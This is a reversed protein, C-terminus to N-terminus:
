WYKTNTFEHSYFVRSNRKRYVTPKQVPHKVMHITPQVMLLCIAVVTATNM